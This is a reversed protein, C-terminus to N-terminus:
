LIKGPNGYNHHINKYSIISKIHVFIKFKLDIISTVMQISLHFVSRNQHFPIKM